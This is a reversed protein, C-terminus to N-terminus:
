ESWPWCAARRCSGPEPRKRTRCRSSRRKESPGCWWASRWEATLLAFAFYRYFRLSRKASNDVKVYSLKKTFYFDCRSCWCVTLCVIYELASDFGCQERFQSWSKVLLLRTFAFLQYLLVIDRISIYWCGGCIWSALFRGDLPFLEFFGFFGTIGATKRNWGDRRILKQYSEAVIRNNQM